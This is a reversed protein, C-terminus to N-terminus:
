FKPKFRYAVLGTRTFVIRFAGALRKEPWLM